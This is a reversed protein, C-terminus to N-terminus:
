LEMAMQYAREFPDLPYEQGDCIVAIQCDGELLVSVTHHDVDAWSHGWPTDHWQLPEQYHRQAEAKLEALSIV